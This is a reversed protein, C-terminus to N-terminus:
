PFPSLPPPTLTTNNPSNTPNVTHTRLTTHTHTSPSTSATTHLPPNPNHQGQNPNPTPQPIPPIGQVLEELIFDGPQPLPPEPGLNRSTAHSFTYPRPITASTNNPNRSAAERFGRIYYLDFRDTFIPRRHSLSLIPQTPHVPEVRASAIPFLLWSDSVTQPSALAGPVCALM